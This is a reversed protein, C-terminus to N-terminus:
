ENDNFRDFIQMSLDPAYVMAIIESTRVVYDEGFNFFVNSDQMHLMSRLHAFQERNGIDIVLNDQDRLWLIAKDM